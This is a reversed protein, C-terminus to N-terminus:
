HFFITSCIFSPPTSPPYSFFIPSDSPILHFHFFCIAFCFILNFDSFIVVPSPFLVLLHALLFHSPFHRIHFFSTSIFSSPKSPPFSLSLLSDSLSRHFHCLTTCISSLVDLSRLHSLKFFSISIFSAGQFLPVRHFQL